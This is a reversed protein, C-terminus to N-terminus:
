VKKLHVPHVLIKKKKNGDKIEVYYNSGQKGVVKGVKNHFRPHYMGKQISPEANLYVKENEILKQFFKRISFKGRDRVNKSLKSRTKRRFGGTRKM